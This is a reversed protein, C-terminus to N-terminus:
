TMIIDGTNTFMTPLSFAFLFILNFSAEAALVKVLKNQKRKVYLINYM